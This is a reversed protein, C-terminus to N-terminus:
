IATGIEAPTTCDTSSQSGAVSDQQYFGLIQGLSSSNPAPLQSPKTGPPSSPTLLIPPLLAQPSKPQLQRYQLHQLPYKPCVARSGIMLKVGELEDDLDLGESVEDPPSAETNSRHDDPTSEQNIEEVSKLSTPSRMSSAASSDSPYSKRDVGGYVLSDNSCCSSEVSCNSNMRTHSASYHVAASGDDVASAVVRTRRRGRAKAGASAAASNILDLYKVPSSPPSKTAHPTLNHYIHVNEETQPTAPPPGPPMVVLFGDRDLVLDSLSIPATHSNTCDEGDFSSRYNDWAAEVSNDSASRLTRPDPGQSQSRQAVNQRPVAETLCPPTAVGDTGPVLAPFQAKAPPDPYRKLSGSGKARGPVDVSKARSYGSGKTKLAPRTRSLSSSPSLLNRMTEAEAIKVNALHDAFRTHTLSIEPLVDWLDSNSTTSAENSCSSQSSFDAQSQPGTPEDDHPKSSIREGPFRSAHSVSSSLLPGRSSTVSHTKPQTTVISAMSQHNKLRSAPPLSATQGLPPFNYESPSKPNWSCATEIMMSTHEYMLRSSTHNEESGSETVTQCGPWDSQPSTPSTPCISLPGKTPFLKPKKWPLKLVKGTSLPNFSGRSEPKNVNGIGGSPTVYLLNEAATTLSLFEPKVPSQAVLPKAPISCHPVM